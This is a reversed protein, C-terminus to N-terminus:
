GPPHKDTPLTCFVSDIGLRDFESFLDADHQWFHHATRPTAERGELETLLSPIRVLAPKWSQEQALHVTWSYTLDPQRTYGLQGSKSNAARHQPDVVLKVEVAIARGAYTLQLDHAGQRGDMDNLNVKM